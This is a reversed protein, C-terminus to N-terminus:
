DPTANLTLKVRLTLGNPHPNPQLQPAPGETYTYDIYRSDLYNRFEAAKTKNQAVANETLLQIAAALRQRAAPATAAFVTAALGKASACWLNGQNHINVQLNFDFTAQIQGQPSDSM